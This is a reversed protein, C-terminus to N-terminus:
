KSANTRPEPPGGQVGSRTTPGLSVPRVQSMQLGILYFCTAAIISQIVWYDSEPFQLTIRLITALSTAVGYAIYVFAINELPRAMYWKGLQSVLILGSALQIFIM